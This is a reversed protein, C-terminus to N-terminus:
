GGSFPPFVSIKEPYNIVYSEERLEEKVAFRSLSLIKESLPNKNKLLNKLDKLTIGAKIELDFNEPFYDKLAAFVEIQIKM